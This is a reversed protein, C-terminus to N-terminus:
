RAVWGDGRRREMEVGDGRPSLPLRRLVGRAVAYNYNIQLSSFPFEPLEKATWACVLKVLNQFNQSVASLQMGVGGLVQAHILGHTADAVISQM